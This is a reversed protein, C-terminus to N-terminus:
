LVWVLGLHALHGKELHFISESLGQWIVQGPTNQIGLVRLDHPTKEQFSM